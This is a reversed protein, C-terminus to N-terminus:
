FFVFIIMLFSKFNSRLLWDSVFSSRKKEVKIIISTSQDVVKPDTKKTVSPEGFVVKNTVVDFLMLAITLADAQASARRPEFGTVDFYKQGRPFSISGSM